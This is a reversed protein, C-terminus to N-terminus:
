GGRHMRGSIYVDDGLTRVHPEELRLADNMREVGAGTCPSAASSGGILKPAIFAHVEDIQGADLLSGLLRGGAEILVNTMKRRGLEQLLAHLRQQSDAAMCRWVECGADTLDRENKEPADPGVAVLVPTERATRVLQSDLLLVARSDLVVRAARRPGAPRATLLPDDAAATGSGILIADVRGRLQHTVRLAAEGSIWRSDGTRTALKGDLTMAWKAIIWPLGREVLKLYPANLHRADEALLGVETEIGSAELARLGGGSVAPFPDALAAVVRKIGAAQIAETCPPTKGYHCCPELTCYLTAGRARAGAVKLAEIEAHPAGFRTHFGEGVVGGDTQVIVCGVLPNPEVLGQGRAALEIARRMHWADFESHTGRPAPVAIAFDESM